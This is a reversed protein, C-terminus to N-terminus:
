QNLTGTGGSGDTGAGCSVQNTFVRTWDPPLVTQDFVKINSWFALTLEAENDPAPYCGYIINMSIGQYDAFSGTCNGSSGFNRITMNSATHGSWFSGNWTLTYTGNIWGGNNLVRISSQGNNYSRCGGCENVGSFTMSLPAATDPCESCHPVLSNPGTTCDPDTLTRIFNTSAKYGHVCDGTWQIPFWEALYWEGTHDCKEIYYTYRTPTTPPCNANPWVRNITLPWTGCPNTGAPPLFSDCNPPTDNNPCQYFRHAGRIAGFKVTTTASVQGPLSKEIVWYEVAPVGNETKDIRWYEKEQAKVQGLGLAVLGMIM